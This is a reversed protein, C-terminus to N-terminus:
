AVARADRLVAPRYELRFVWRTGLWTREIVTVVQDTWDLDTDTLALVRGLRLWAWTPDAEYEVSRAPTAKARAWWLALQDASSADYIVDTSLTEAQIGYRQAALTAYATGHEDDDVDAQPVIPIRRKYAGDRGPKAYEITLSTTLEAPDVLVELPGVRHFDPGATVAVADLVKAEVLDLVPVLGDPGRRVSVPILPPDGLLHDSIWEWPTVEPDNVYSAIKLRAQPGAALTAWAGWDVPLTSQSLAWRIVNGVRELQRGAATTPTTSPIYPDIMGGGNHWGVWFELGTFATGLTGITVAPGLNIVACLNGRADAQTSVTLVESTTGDYVTVSTAKVPHGALLLRENAGTTDVLYAPSGESTTATGDVDTWRGPAGIVRPYAKGEVKPDRNPWTTKDCVWTSPILTGHDEFAEEQLSCAMWGVPKSPEGYQPSTVLGVLVRERHEWTTSVAGAQYLVMSLEGSAGELEFGQAVRAAVDVPLIVELAVSQGELDVEYRTLRQTVQGVELGPEYSHVTGGSTTVTCARTAQRFVREGWTLELLWVLEAGRLQALSFPRAM